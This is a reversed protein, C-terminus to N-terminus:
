LIEIRAGKKLRETLAQWLQKSQMQEMQQRIYPKVETYDMKKEPTRGDMRVIIYGVETEIPDSIDGAKLSLLPKQLSEPIRDKTLWKHDGMNVRYEDESSREALLGFDNFTKAARAQPLIADVQKKALAKQEASAHEPINVSITQLHYTEPRVFMKGNKSYIDQLKQDTVKAKLEIERHEYEQIIRARRIRREFEATSGYAAKAFDQYAKLTPFRKKASRITKQTEEPSITIGKVKANQYILEDAILQDIAKQHIEAQYKEPVKGGHMQYSPFIRQTQEMLDFATIAVGNVRAVPKKMEPSDPNVAPAPAAAPAAAATPAHSVAMQAALPSAGLALILLTKRINNM